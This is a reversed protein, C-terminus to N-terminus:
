DINLWYKGTNYGLYVPISIPSLLWIILLPWLDCGQENMESAVPLLFGFGFLYTFLIYILAFWCMINTKVSELTILLVM